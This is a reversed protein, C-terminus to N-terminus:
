LDFREIQLNPIASFHKVNGTLLTLKHELATAAIETDIIKTILM